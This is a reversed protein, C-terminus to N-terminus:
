TWTSLCMLHHRLQIWPFLHQHNNYSSSNHTSLTCNCTSNFSFCTSNAATSTNNKFIFSHKFNQSSNSHYLHSNCKIPFLWTHEQHLQQHSLQYISHNSNSRTISCHFSSNSPIPLQTYCCRLSIATLKLLQHLLQIWHSQLQLQPIISCGDHSSKCQHLAIM